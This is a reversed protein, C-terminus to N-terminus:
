YPNKKYFGGDPHRLNITSSASINCFLQPRDAKSPLPRSMIRIMRNPNLLVKTCAAKAKLSDPNLFVRVIKKNRITKDEDKEPGDVAAKVMTYFKQQDIEIGANGVNNYPQWGVISLFFSAM